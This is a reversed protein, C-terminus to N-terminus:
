TSPSLRTIFPYLIWKLIIVLLDLWTDSKCTAVTSNSHGGRWCWLQPLRFICDYLFIFFLIFVWKVSKKKYNHLLIHIIGMWFCGMFFYIRTNAFNLLGGKKNYIRNVVLIMYSYNYNLCNWFPQFTNYIDMHFKIIKIVIAVNWFDFYM